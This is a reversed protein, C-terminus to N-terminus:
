ARPRRGQALQGCYDLMAYAEALTPASVEIEGLRITYAIQAGPKKRLGGVFAVFAGLVGAYFWMPIDSM